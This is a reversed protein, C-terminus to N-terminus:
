RVWGVGRRKVVTVASRALQQERKAAPVPMICGSDLVNMSYLWSSTDAAQQEPTAGGGILRKLGFRAVDEHQAMSQLMLTHHSFRRGPSLNLVAAYAFIINDHM